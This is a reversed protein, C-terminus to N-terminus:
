FGYSGDSIPNWDITVIESFSVEANRDEISPLGFPGGTLDLLRQSRFSIRLVEAIAITTIALYDARLRLSPLGISLAIVVAFVLGGAIALILSGGLWGQTFFIAMGYAGAAMFAVVGFNLLGTYGYHLNLGVAALAFTAAQVGISARLALGLLDGIDVGALINMIM